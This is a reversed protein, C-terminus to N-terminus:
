FKDSACNEPAFRVVGLNLDYVVRMDQQQWAGLLTKGTYPMLAVCFYGKAEYHFYMYTPEVKFDAGQFHFTMSLYPRFKPNSKYCYELGAEKYVRELGFSRFHEDFERMVREYPGKDIFTAMAGTDIMCGGNGNPKLDFTRPPFGIRIDGVSIDVLNLYYYTTLDRYMIPTTQYDKRMSVTDDGFRLISTAEMERYGYVLCYSFRGQITSKLQSILSEPATNLGLIGSIKRGGFTFDINDNSCGFMMNPVPLVAGDKNYAFTFTETSLVGKTAAGGGYLQRYVCNGDVCKCLPKRCRPDTCPIKQYTASATSNYLPLMQNFCNICPLCQTWILGSGGDILLYQSIQPTGLSLEASYFASAEHVPLHINEPAMKSNQSLALFNARAHSIEVMKRNRESQSLNGPYLPSEPSFRPILKLSFGASESPTFHALSVAMLCLFLTPAMKRYLMLM